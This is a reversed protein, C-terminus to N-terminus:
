RKAGQPMWLCRQQVVAAGDIELTGECSDIVANVTARWEGGTDDASVVASGHRAIVSVGVPAVISYRLHVGNVSQTREVLTIRVPAASHVLGARILCAAVLVLLILDFILVFITLRKM